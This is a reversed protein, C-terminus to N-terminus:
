CQPDGSILQAMKRRKYQQAGGKRSHFFWRAYALQNGDIEKHSELADAINRWYIVGEKTKKWIFLSSISIPETPNIIKHLGYQM